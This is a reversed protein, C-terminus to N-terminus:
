IVHLRFKNGIGYFNGSRYISNRNNIEWKINLKNPSDGDLIIMKSLCVYGSLSIYFVTNDIFKHAKTM